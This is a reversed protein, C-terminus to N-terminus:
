FEKHEITHPGGRGRGAYLPLGAYFPSDSFHSWIHVHMYWMWLVGSWKHSLTWRLQDTWEVTNLLRRSVGCEWAPTRCVNGQTCERLVEKEFTNQRKQFREQIKELSHCCRLWGHLSSCKERQWDPWGTRSNCWEVYQCQVQKEADEQRCYGTVVPSCTWEWLFPSTTQVNILEVHKVASGNRLKHFGNWM